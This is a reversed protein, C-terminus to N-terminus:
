FTFYTHLCSSPTTNIVQIHINQVDQNCLVPDRHSSRKPHRTNLTSSRTNLASDYPLILTYPLPRYKTLSRFTFRTLMKIVNYTILKSSLDKVKICKNVFM